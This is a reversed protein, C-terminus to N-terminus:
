AALGAVLNITTALIVSGFLFSLLGHRLATARISHLEINTDSVQFTMGITFALYAFELYTPQEKQNFDIGGDPGSYYLMAYRLTFVTHVLFWSLAVSALALGALLDKTTGHSGKAQILVFAVAVLSAVGALVILLDGVTRTPDERTAHASTATADLRGIVLWVWVLYIVCAVAWGITAAYPWHGTAGVLLAAVAGAVFM